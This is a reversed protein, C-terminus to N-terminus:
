DDAGAVGGSCCLMIGNDRAGLSAFSELSILLKPRAMSGLLLSSLKPPCIDASRCCGSRWALAISSIDVDSSSHAFIECGCDVLALIDSTEAEAKTLM